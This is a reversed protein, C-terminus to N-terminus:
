SLVVGHISWDNTGATWVAADSPTALTGGLGGTADFSLDWATSGVLSIGIWVDTEAEFWRGIPWNFWRGTSNLLLATNNQGTFAMLDGPAGTDDTYVFAAVHPVNAIPQAVHAQVSVLLSTAPVTVPILYAPGNAMTQDSAGITTRGVTAQTIM